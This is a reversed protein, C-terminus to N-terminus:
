GALKAVVAVFEYSYALPIKFQIRSNNMLKNNFPTTACFCKAKQNQGETM